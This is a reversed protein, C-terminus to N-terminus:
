PVLCYGVSYTYNSLDGHVIEVRVVDPLFTSLCGNVGAGISAQIVSGVGQGFVAVQNGVAVMPTNTIGLQMYNTTVPDRGRIAIRLGGTGSAASVFVYVVIGRFGSTDIDASSTTASRIASALATGTVRQCQSALLRALLVNVPDGQQPVRSTITQDAM